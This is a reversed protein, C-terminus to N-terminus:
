IRWSNIWRMLGVRYNGLLKLALDKSHMFQSIVMRNDESLIKKERKM